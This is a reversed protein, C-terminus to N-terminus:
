SAEPAGMMTIVEVVAPEKASFAREFASRLGDPREVREVHAGLGEGVKSLDGSLEMWPINLPKNLRKSAQVRTLDFGSNNLVVYTAKINHRVATNIEMGTMGFSGDGLLDVVEKEPAGLKAGIAAGVSWGMCSQNGFAMISKPVPCEWHYTLLGRSSGSDHVMLSKAPDLVQMLEWVVRHPNIPVADSTLNPMWEERWAKKLRAIDNRM